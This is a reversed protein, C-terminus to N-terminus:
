VGTRRRASTMIKEVLVTFSMGKATAIMPLDSHGPNVGALPNVEMIAPRGQPDLRIDVRGADRCGLVRWARLSLEEAERATRDEPFRYEVLEHWNEKNVFSYAGQEGQERIIIELTGLVEADAGSGLIAVTLERGPLYEEVLVPQKYRELLEDCRHQLEKFSTIRSSGDIGKGTGEAVPKAFLPYTLDVLNIDDHERVLVFDPTRLGADRLINKTFGKHLSVAMVCPDSFTYPIGYSDLLAPVLAERGLGAVGEAINFVMDWREGAGLRRILEDANGILEPAYGLETLAGALADITVRSDLEATDEESYGLALYHDRLDYTLGVRLRNGSPKNGEPISAGSM